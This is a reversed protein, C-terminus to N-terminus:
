LGYGMERILSPTQDKFSKRKRYLHQSESDQQSIQEVSDLPNKNMGEIVEDEFKISTKRGTASGNAAAPAPAQTPATAPAAEPGDALSATAIFILAFSLLNKM